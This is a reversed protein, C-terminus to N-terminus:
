GGKGDLSGKTCFKFFFKIDIDLCYARTNTRSWLRGWFVIIVCLKKNNRNAMMKILSARDEEIAPERPVNFPRGARFLLPSSEHISLLVTKERVGM